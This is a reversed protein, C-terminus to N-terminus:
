SVVKKAYDQAILREVCAELSRRWHPLRIGHVAAIRSADLRSNAPRRAPTPYDSSPIPVVRASPGGAAASLAFIAAAFDAWNTEGDGTMHFIGRLETASPKAILNAVVALVGDAIDLASTPTGQQDCVVRVEDRQGALALMTRVFNKGFPSYVWATRLIVHDSTAAAVAREGALKSAGYVGLPCVEDDERYPRDLAGDFVYDTSLHVVPIGLRAAASAVAGAGAANIAQALEPEREALDVATYAAANVIARPRLRILAAEVDRPNALDAEPRAVTCIEVAAAAGREILARAVQGDRGTVAIRM